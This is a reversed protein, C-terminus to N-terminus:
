TWIVGVCVRKMTLDEPPMNSNTTVNDNPMRFGWDIGKFEEDTMHSFMNLGAKWSENKQNHEWVFRVNEKWIKYRHQLDHSKINQFKHPLM